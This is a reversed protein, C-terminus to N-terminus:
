VPRALDAAKRFGRSATFRAILQPVQATYSGGIQLVVSDVPMFIGLYSRDHGRVLYHSLDFGLCVAKVSCRVLDVVKALTPRTFFSTNKQLQVDGRARLHPLRFDPHELLLLALEVFSIPQFPDDGTGLTGLLSILLEVFCMPARVTSADIEQLWLPTLGDTLGCHNVLEAWDTDDICQPPLTEMTPLKQQADEAVNLYFTRLSRMIRKQEEHYNHARRAMQYFEPPRHDNMSVAQQDVIDNWCAVWEEFSTDCASIDLHSPIWRIRIQLPDAQDLHDRLQQILDHNAMSHIDLGPDKDLLRQILGEVYKSDTWIAIQCSHAIAWAIAGLAATLEARGISQTYGALYGSAITLATSANVIGWAARTTYDLGNDFCSGDVFVHQIGEGPTSIWHWTRDLGCFYAKLPAALPSRGPLLHSTLAQPLLNSMVLLWSSEDRHRSHKPCRLWHEQTDPVLCKDCIARKSGDFKSQAWASLFAGEQLALTRGLELSTMRDHDLRVLAADLGALDHMSKRKSAEVAVHQLWADQLLVRLAQSDVELLDWSQGDHDLVM